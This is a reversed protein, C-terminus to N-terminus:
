GPVQGAGDPEVEVAVDAAGDAGDAAAVREGFGFRELRDQSAGSDVVVGMHEDVVVAVAHGGGAGPPGEAPRADLVHLDEFAAEFGPGARSEGEFGFRHLGLRARHG